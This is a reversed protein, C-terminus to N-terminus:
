LVYMLGFIVFLVVVTLDFGIGPLPSSAIARSKPRPQGQERYYRKVIKRLKRVTMFCLPFRFLAGAHVPAGFMARDVRGSRDAQSPSPWAYFSDRIPIKRRDPPTYRCGDAGSLRRKQTNNQLNNGRRLKHTALPESVHTRPGQGTTHWPNGARKRESGAMRTAGARNRVVPWPWARAVWAASRPQPREVACEAQASRLQGARNANQQSHTTQTM